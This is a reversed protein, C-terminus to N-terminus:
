VLSKDSFPTANGPMASDRAFPKWVQAVGKIFLRWIETAVERVGYLGRYSPSTPLRPPHTWGSTMHSNLILARRDKRKTMASLRLAM